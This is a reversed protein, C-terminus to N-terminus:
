PKAKYLINFAQALARAIDHNDRHHDYHLITGIHTEYCFRCLHEHSRRDPSIPKTRGIDDWKHKITPADSGCRDCEIVCGDEKHLSYITM